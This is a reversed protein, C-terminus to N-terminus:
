RLLTLSEHYWPYYNFFHKTLKVHCMPGIFLALAYNLVLTLPYLFSYRTESAAQATLGRWWKSRDKWRTVRWWMIIRWLKDHLTEDCSSEICLWSSERVPCSTGCSNTSDSSSGEDYCSVDLLFRHRQHRLWYMGNTWKPSRVIQWRTVSWVKCKTSTCNKKYNKMNCGWIMWIGMCCKCSIRLSDRHCLCSVDDDNTDLAMEAASIVEADTSFEVCYQVYGM